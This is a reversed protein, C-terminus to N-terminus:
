SKSRYRAEILGRMEGVHGIFRVFESFATQVDWHLIIARLCTLLRQLLKRVLWNPIVKFMAKGEYSNHDAFGLAKGRRYHRRCFNSVKFNSKSIKHHIVSGPQYVVKGGGAIVRQVFETDQALMYLCDYKGFRHFASRKVAQNAGWLGVYLDTISFMQKGYDLLGFNGYLTRPIWSPPPGNLWIPLIKGGVLDADHQEFTDVISQIWSPDAIVDDDTFALLESSTEEIARNLAHPRGQQPEFLYRCPVLSKKAFEHVIRKTDDQSNNDVVVIEWRLGDSIQQAELSKLTELLSECCNYTPIIVSVLSQPSPQIM